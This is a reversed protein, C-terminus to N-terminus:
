PQRCTFNAAEELSGSGAYAAYAPYPCLPRTRGPWPVGPVNRARATLSQPAEGRDVWADLAALADFQDTAPGGACHNMGPVLYLRTFDDARGYRQGLADVYAMTDNASFIPDAMGHFFIMKGGRAKFRDVDISSASEISSGSELFPAATAEVARVGRAIDYSLTYNYLDTPKEPPSSFYYAVSGPVLTVNRADPPTKGPTGTKWVSWGPAAIGPDYPWEAYLASGDALTTGRFIAAITKAKAPALCDTTQGGTCALTAADFRCARVNNVMGDAVGDAADCAQTVKDAVLKIDDASLAAGLDPRGDSGKPAIAALQQVEAIGEIAARPVRYAPAGAIIGDFLDPYRQTAAMGQRGGNSCGVFYARSQARGYVRRIVDEAKATVVPIHNYGKDIRAQPDLGFLYPGVPGPEDRHGADTSAVAYGRALASVAGTAQIGVAPRLVGDSGGGGQFMFKGNWNAPLRVEFGIAYPKGDIGVHPAAAGQVLCHDPADISFPPPGAFSQPGAAVFTALTVEPAGALAECAAKFSQAAAPAIVATAALLGGVLVRRAM